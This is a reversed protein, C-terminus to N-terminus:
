YSGGNYLKGVQLGDSTFDGPGFGGGAARFSQSADYGLSFDTGNAMSSFGNSVDTGFNGVSSFMNSGTAAGALDQIAQSRAKSVINKSAHYANASIRNIDTTGQKFARAIVDMPGGELTIGSQLFSTTLSGAKRVTNDAVTLANREAEQSIAKGEAKAQKVTNMAGLAKFGVIAVTEWGM